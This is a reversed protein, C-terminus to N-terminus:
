VLSLLSIMLQQIRPLENGRTCGGEQHHTFRPAQLRGQRGRCHEGTASNWYPAPTCIVTDTDKKNVAIGLLRSSAVFTESRWSLEAQLLVRSLVSLLLRSLSKHAPNTCAPGRDRVPQQLFPWRALRELNQGRLTLRSSRNQGGSKCFGRALTSLQFPGASRVQTELSDRRLQRCYAMLPEQIYSLLGVSRLCGFSLLGPNLPLCRLAWTSSSAQPLFRLNETGPTSWVSKTCIIRLFCAEM